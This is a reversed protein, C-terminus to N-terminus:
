GLGKLVGVSMDFCLLVVCCLVFVVCIAAKYVVRLILGVKEKCLIGSMYPVPNPNPQTSNSQTRAKTVAWAWSVEAGGWSILCCLPRLFPRLFPRLSPPPPRVLALDPVRMFPVSGHGPHLSATEIPASFPFFFFFVGTKSCNGNFLCSNTFSNKRKKGREERKGEQKQAARGVIHNKKNKQFLGGGWYM